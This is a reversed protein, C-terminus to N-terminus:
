GRQSADGPDAGHAGSVNGLNDGLAADVAAVPHPSILAALVRVLPDVGVERAVEVGTARDAVDDVVGNIRRVHAPPRREDDRVAHEDAPNGGRLVADGEHRVDGIVLQVEGYRD